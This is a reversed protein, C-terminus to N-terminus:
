TPSSGFPSQFMRDWCLGRSLYYPILYSKVRFPISVLAPKAHSDLIRVKILYSKVRFPISVGEESIGDM